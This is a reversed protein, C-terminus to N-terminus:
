GFVVAFYARITEAIVKSADPGGLKPSASMVLLLIFGKELRGLRKEIEAMQKTQAEYLEKFSPRDSAPM